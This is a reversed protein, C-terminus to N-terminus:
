LGKGWSLQFSFFINTLGLVCVERAGKRVSSPNDQADLKQRLMPAQALNYIQRMSSTHIFEIRLSISCLSKTLWPVQGHMHKISTSMVIHLLLFTPVKKEFKQLM